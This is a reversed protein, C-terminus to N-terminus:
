QDRRHRDIGARCASSPTVTLATPIQAVPVWTQDINGSGSSDRLGVVGSVQLRAPLNVTNAHYNAATPLEFLM